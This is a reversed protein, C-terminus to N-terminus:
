VHFRGTSPVESMEVSSEFYGWNQGIHVNTQAHGAETCMHMCIYVLLTLYNSRTDSALTDGFCVSLVNLM